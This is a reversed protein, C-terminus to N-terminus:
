NCMGSPNTGTEECGSADGNFCADDANQSPCDYNTGNICCTFSSSGSTTTTTSGSGGTGGSSSSGCGTSAILAAGFVISSLALVIRNM